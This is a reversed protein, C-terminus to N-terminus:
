PGTTSKAQDSYAITGDRPAEEQISEIKSADKGRLMEFVEVELEDIEQMAELWATMIEKESLM